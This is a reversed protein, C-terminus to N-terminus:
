EDGRYPRDDPPMQDDYQDDDQPGMSRDNDRDDYRSRDGDRDEYGGRYGDDRYQRRGQYGDDYRGRYNDNDEDDYGQGRYSPVAGLGEGPREAQMENLRRTEEAQDDYCGHDNCLYTDDDARAAGVLAPGSLTAAAIGAFLIHKLAM